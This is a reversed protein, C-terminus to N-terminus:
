NRQDLEDKEALQAARAELIKVIPEYNHDRDKDRDWSNPRQPNELAEFAKREALDVPKMGTEREEVAVNAGKEVLLRVADISGRNAASHLATRGADNVVNIDLGADLLVEICQPHNHYAATHIAYIGGNATKKFGAHYEFLLIRLINDHGAKAAHFLATWGEEILREDVGLGLEMLKRLMNQNGISAAHHVPLHLTDYDIRGKLEGAQMSAGSSLLLNFMDENNKEISRILASTHYYRTNAEAGFSLLLRAIDLYNNRVASYLPSPEEIYCRDPDRAPSEINPNVGANLLVKVISIYGRDASARM